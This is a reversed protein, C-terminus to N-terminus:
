KGSKAKKLREETKQKKDLLDLEEGAAVGAIEALSAPILPGHVKLADEAALVVKPATPRAPPQPQGLLSVRSAVHLEGSDWAFQDLLSLSGSIVHYAKESALRTQEPAEPDRLPRLAAEIELLSHLFWVGVPYKKLNTCQEFYQRVTAEGSIGSQSAAKQQALAVIGDFRRTGRLPARERMRALRRLGKTGKMGAEPAEDDSTDPSEPGRGASAQRGENRALHLLRRLEADTLRSSPAGQGSLDASRACEELRAIGDGQTSFAGAGSVPSVFESAGGTMRYVPVPAAARRPTMPNGVVADGGSGAQVGTCPATPQRSTSSEFGSSGLWGPRADRIEPERARTPAERVEVARFREEMREEMRQEVQALKRTLDTGFDRLALRMSERLDPPAEQPTARPPVEAQPPVASQSLGTARSPARELGLETALRRPVPPSTEVVKEGETTRLRRVIAQKEPSQVELGELLLHDSERLCFRTQDKPWSHFPASRAEAGADLFKWVASVRLGEATPIEVVGPDGRTGPFLALIGKPEQADAIKVGQRPGGKPTLVWFLSGKALTAPDVKISRQTM